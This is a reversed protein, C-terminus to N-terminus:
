NKKGKKENAAAENMEGVMSCGPEMGRVISTIQRFSTTSIALAPSLTTNVPVTATTGSVVPIAVM